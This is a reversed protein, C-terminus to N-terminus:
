ISRGCVHRTDTSMKFHSKKLKYKTSYKKTVTIDVLDTQMVKYSEANKSYSITVIFLQSM